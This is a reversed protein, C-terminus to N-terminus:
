PRGGKLVADLLQRATPNANGLGILFAAELAKYALFETWRASALLYSAPDNPNELKIDPKLTFAVKLSSALARLVAASSRGVALLGQRAGPKLAGKPQDKTSTGQDPLGVEQVGPKPPADPHDRTSPDQTRQVAWSRLKSSSRLVTALLVALGLNALPTTPRVLYGLIRRYVFDGVRQSWGLHESRLALLQFRAENALLLDGRERATKEVLALAAQLGLIKAGIDGRQSEAVLPLGMRFDRATVRTLDVSEGTFLADQLDLTGSATLGFFSVDALFTTGLFSVTGSASVWPFLARGSFLSGAFTAGGLFRASEFRADGAFQSRSFDVLGEFVAREFDAAGAFYRMRIDASGSFRSREFRVEGCFRGVPVASQNCEGQGLTSANGPWGSLFVDGDFEAGSFDAEAYFDALDLSVSRLFRASLFRAPGRFTAADLRLTDEFTALSLDSTEEFDSGRAASAGMMLARHFVAGRLDVGGAVLIGSLDVIQEFTVDRALFSGNLTCDVCRISVEIDSVTRLDLDGRITMGECEVARGSAVWDLLEDSRIETGPCDGAPDPERPLRPRGPAAKLRSTLPSGAGIMVVVVLTAADRVFFAHMSRAHCGARRRLSAAVEVVAGAGRIM